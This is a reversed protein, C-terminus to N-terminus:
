KNQNVWTRRQIECRLLGLRAKSITEIRGNEDTSDCDKAEAKLQHTTYEAFYAALEDNSKRSSFYPMFEGTNDYTGITETAGKVSSPMPKNLNDKDKIDITVSASSNMVDINQKNHESGTVHSKRYKSHYESNARSLLVARRLIKNM